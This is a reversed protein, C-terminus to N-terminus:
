EPEFKIIRRRIVEGDCYVDLPDANPPRRTIRLVENKLSAKPNYKHNIRAYEMATLYDILSDEAPEPLEKKKIREVLYMFYVRYGAPLESEDFVPMEIIPNEILIEVRDISPDFPNKDRDEPKLPLSTHYKELQMGLMKMVNLNAMSPSTEGVIKSLLTM